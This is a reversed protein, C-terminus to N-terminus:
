AEVVTRLRADNRKKGIPRQFMTVILALRPCYIVRVDHGKINMEVHHHGRQDINSLEGAACKASLQLVEPVSLAIGLREWTRRQVHRIANERHAEGYRPTTHKRLQRRKRSMM